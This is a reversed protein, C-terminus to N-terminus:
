DSHTLDSSWVASLLTLSIHSNVSEQRLNREKKKEGNQNEVIVSWDTARSRTPHKAHREFFGLLSSSIICRLRVEGGTYYGAETSAIPCPEIEMVQLM